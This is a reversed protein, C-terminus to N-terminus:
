CGRSLSKLVDHSLVLPEFSPLLQQYPWGDEAFAPIILRTVESEHHACVAAMASRSVHRKITPTQYALVHLVQPLANLKPEVEVELRLDPGQWRWRKGEVMVTFLGRVIM